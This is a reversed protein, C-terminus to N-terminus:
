RNLQADAALADFLRDLHLDDAFDDRDLVHTGTDFAAVHTIETDCAELALARKLLQLRADGVHVAVHGGVLELSVDDVEAIVATSKEILRDRDGIREELAAFDDRGAAAIGFVGLPVIRPRAVDGVALRQDNQDVAARRRCGFNDGARQLIVLTRRDEAAAREALARHLRHDRDSGVTRELERGRAVEGGGPARNLGLADRGIDLENLIQGFLELALDLRAALRRQAAMELVALLFLLLRARGGVDRWIRLVVLLEREREIEQAADLAIRGERRVRLPRNRVSARESPILLILGRGTEPRPKRKATRRAPTKLGGNVMRDRHEPQSRSNGFSGFRETCAATSRRPNFSVPNTVSSRLRGRPVLTRRRESRGTGGNRRIAPESPKRVAMTSPQSRNTFSGRALSGKATTEISFLPALCFDSGAAGGGAADARSGTSFLAAAIGAPACVTVMMSPLLPARCSTTTRLTSGAAPTIVALSCSPRSACETSGRKTSTERWPAM